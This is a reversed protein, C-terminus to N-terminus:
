DLHPQQLRLVLVPILRRFQPTIPHRMNRILVTKGAALSGVALPLPVTARHVPVVGFAGSCAGLGEGCRLIWLFLQASGPM